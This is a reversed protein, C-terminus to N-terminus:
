AVRKLKSSSAPVMTLGWAGSYYLRAAAGDPGEITCHKRGTDILHNMAAKKANNANKCHGQSIGYDTTWQRKKQKAM